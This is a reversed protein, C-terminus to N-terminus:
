MTAENVTLEIDLLDLTLHRFLPFLFFDNGVVEEALM